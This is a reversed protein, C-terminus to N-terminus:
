HQQYDFLPNGLGTARAPVASGIRGVLSGSRTRCRAPGAGLRALCGDGPSQRRRLGVQRCDPVRSVRSAAVPRLSTGRAARVRFMGAAGVGAFRPHRSPVVEPQRSIPAHPKRPIVRASPAIWEGGERDLWDGLRGKTYREISEWSGGCRLSFGDPSESKVTADCLDRQMRCTRSHPAAHSGLRPAGPDDPKSAASYM